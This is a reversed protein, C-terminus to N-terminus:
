GVVSWGWGVLADGGGEGGEEAAEAGAAVAFEGAGGELEFGFDEVEDAVFGGFGFFGGGGTLLTLLTVEGSGHCGGFEGELEVVGAMADGLFAFQRIGGFAKDGGLDGGLVLGCAADGTLGDVHDVDPAEAGDGDAGWVFYLRGRGMVM